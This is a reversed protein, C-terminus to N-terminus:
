DLLAGFGVLFADVSTNFRAEDDTGLGRRAAEPRTSHSV